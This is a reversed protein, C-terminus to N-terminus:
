LRSGCVRFMLCLLQVSIIHDKQKCCFSFFISFPQSLFLCCYFFGYHCSELAPVTSVWPECAQTHAHTHTRQLDTSTRTCTPASPAMCCSTQHSRRSCEQYNGVSSSKVECRSEGGGRGRWGGGARQWVDVSNCWQGSLWLKKGERGLSSCVVLMTMM